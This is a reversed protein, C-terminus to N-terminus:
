QVWRGGNYRWSRVTATTGIITLANATSPQNAIGLLLTGNVPDGNTDTFSGESTFMVPSGAVPAAAGGIFIATGNGFGDPTDPIAPFKRYELRGEFYMTEILTPAPTVAPPNPVARQYARVRYPNGGRAELLSAVAFIEFACERNSM